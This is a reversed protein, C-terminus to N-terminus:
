RGGWNKGGAERYADWYQRLMAVQGEVHNSGAMLWMMAESHFADYCIDKQRQLAKEARYEERHQKCRLLKGDLNGDWKCGCDSM